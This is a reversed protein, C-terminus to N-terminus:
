LNVVSFCPKIYEAFVNKTYEKVAPLINTISILSFCNLCLILWIFVPHFTEKNNQTPVVYNPNEWSWAPWIHLNRQCLRPLLIADADGFQIVHYQSQVSQRREGKFKTMCVEHTFRAHHCTVHWRSHIDRNIVRWKRQITKRRAHMSWTDWLRIAIQHQLWLIQKLCPIFSCHGVSKM